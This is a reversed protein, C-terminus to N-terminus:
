IRRGWGSDKDECELHEVDVYRRNSSQHDRRYNFGVDKAFRNRVNDYHM